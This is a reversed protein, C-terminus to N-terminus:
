RPAESNKVPASETSPANFRPAKHEGKEDDGRRPGGKGGRFGGRGGRKGEEGAGRRKREDEVQEFGDDSDEEM